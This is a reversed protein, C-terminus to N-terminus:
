SFDEFARCGEGPGSLGVEGQPLPSGLFLVSDFVGSTKM